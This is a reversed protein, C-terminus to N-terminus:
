TQSPHSGAVCTDTQGSGGVGPRFGGARSGDSSRTIMPHKPVQQGKTPPPAKAGKPEVPYTHPCQVGKGLGLDYDKERRPKRTVCWILPNLPVAHCGDSKPAQSCEGPVLGLPREGTCSLVGSPSSWTFTYICIRRFHNTIAALCDFWTLKSFM